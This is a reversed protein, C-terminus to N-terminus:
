NTGFECLYRLNIQATDYVVCEHNIVGATGPEVWTSDCGKMPFNSVSGTPKGMRGLAAECLFMFTRQRAAGSSNWFGTAYNLAKTSQLSTYIGNGFMRGTCHQASSPPVVLGNKLISLLNSARTGHWLDQRVNGLRAAAEDFNKKMDEIEVEYVRVLKLASSTHGANRTKEFLARLERFKAKGEDTWHPLKTLRCRFIKEADGGSEDRIAADLADLLANEQRIYKQTPLLKEVPPIKVGFDRPVLQFYDRIRRAREPPYNPYKQNLRHIDALIQRARSIAGPTLVGLPTSFTARSADYKISSAHTIHHINVDALYKVLDLTTTDDCGAIQAAALAPLDKLDAADATLEKEGTFVESDLYGKRLKEERKAELRRAAEFESDLQKVTEALRAGERVRGYRTEFRGDTYATGIWVKNSNEAPDFYNMKYQKAISMM